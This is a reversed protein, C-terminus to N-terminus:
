LYEFIDNPRELHVFGPKRGCPQPLEPHLYWCAQLAKMGLNKAAELERSGGDGVYVCQEPTVALREMCRCFIAPDPKKLGEEYSLCAADFYSFVPSERIVPVEESFCNSVLGIKIGADRLSQLMPLIGPHLHRFCERKVEARKRCIVALLDESYVGFEKLIVALAHELTLKGETRDSEMPFWLRRFDEVPIGADAAIEGSFYLCSAYHTVLTEFMDFIAAKM